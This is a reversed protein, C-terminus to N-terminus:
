ISIPRRCASATVLKNGAEVAADAPDAAGTPESAVSTDKESLSPPLSPLFFSLEHRSLLVQCWHRSSQRGTGSVASSQRVFCLSRQLFSVVFASMLRAVWAVSRCVLWGVSWGVSSHISDLSSSAPSSSVVMWHYIGDILLLLICFLPSSSLTSFPSKCLVFSIISFYLPTLRARFQPDNTRFTPRQDSLVYARLVSNLTVDGM